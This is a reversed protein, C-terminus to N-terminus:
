YQITYLSTRGWRIHLSSVPHCHTDTAVGNNCIGVEVWAVANCIKWGNCLMTANSCIRAVWQVAHCTGAFPHLSAPQNLHVLVLVFLRICTCTCFHLDGGMACCPKWCVPPSLSSTFGQSTGRERHVGVGGGGRVLSIGWPLYVICAM